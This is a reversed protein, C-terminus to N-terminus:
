YVNEVGEIYVNKGELNVGQLYMSYLWKYEVIYDMM